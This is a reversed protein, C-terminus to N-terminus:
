KRLDFHRVVFRGVFRVLRAGQLGCDPLGVGAARGRGINLDRAFHQAQRSVPVWLRGISTPLRM